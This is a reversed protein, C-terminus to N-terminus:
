DCCVGRLVMGGRNFTFPKVRDIGSLGWGRTCHAVRVAVRNEADCYRGYESEFVDPAFSRDAFTSAFGSSWTECSAAFVASIM